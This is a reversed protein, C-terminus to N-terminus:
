LLMNCDGHSADVHHQSSNDDVRRSTCRRRKEFIAESRGQVKAATGIASKPRHADTEADADVRASTDQRPVKHLTGQALCYEGPRIWLCACLAIDTEEGPAGFNLKCPHHDGHTLTYSVHITTEM